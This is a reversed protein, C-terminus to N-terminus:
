AACARELTLMARKRAVGWHYNHLRGDAALARHCPIFWSIPNAGVAAGVARAAKPNGSAKALAGYTSVTGMPIDLLARWIQRRFPTGYLAVPLPEGAEFVRRAMQEAEADDRRISAGPYRGALDAFANEETRGQHEFGTREPPNEDIFGLAVLGRPSILWAGEGFPTPARGLVLDAGKGGAKAEGPSLGEHAIFLDHLRGPGSLGTELTADLVSAGERLLDGAAAHALASQYQKPSIGAWRTFERQFHSPSLGVSKAATALDPWEQWTDGLYSLADAMREYAVAREDLSHSVTMMFCSHRAVFELAVRKKRCM